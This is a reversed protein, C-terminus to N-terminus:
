STMTLVEVWRSLRLWKGLYSQPINFMSVCWCPSKSVLFCWGTIIQALIELGFLEVCEADSHRSQLRWLVVKSAKTVELSGTAGEPDRRLQKGCLHFMMERRSFEQNHMVHAADMLWVDNCIDYVCVCVCIYINYVHNIDHYLKMHWKWKLNQDWSVCEVNWGVDWLEGRRRKAAKRKGRRSWIWRLTRVPAASSPTM